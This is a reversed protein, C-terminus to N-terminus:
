PILYFNKFTIGMDTSRYIADGGQWADMNIFLHGKQNFVVNTGYNEPVDIRMKKFTIGADESLFVGSYDTGILIYNEKYNSMSTIFSGFNYSKNWTKGFDDSYYLIDSGAFLRGGDSEAFEYTSFYNLELLSLDWTLGEDSSILIGSKFDYNANNSVFIDLSQAFYRTTIM